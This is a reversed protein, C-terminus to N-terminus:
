YRSEPGSARGSSLAEPLTWPEGPPLLKSFGTSYADILERLEDRDTDAEVPWPVVMDSGLWSLARHLDTLAIGDCQGAISLVSVNPKYYDGIFRLEASMGTEAALYVKHGCLKVMFGLAPGGYNGEHLLSAAGNNVATVTVPQASDWTFANGAGLGIAEAHAFGQSALVTNTVVTFRTTPNQQIFAQAPEVAQGRSLLVLHPGSESVPLLAMAPDSPNPNLWVTAQQHQCLRVGGPEFVTLTLM